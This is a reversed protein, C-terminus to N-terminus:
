DRRNSYGEVIEDESIIESEKEPINKVGLRRMAGKRSEFGAETEERLLAVLESRDDPLPLIFNVESSIDSVANVFGYDYHSRSFDRSKLYKISKEHLESLGSGWVQWHEETEQIVDQYLVQLARDNLGGFNLEQPVIQPLGSLEHLASKIRNYQDKYAEKWKFSTEIPYVKSGVGDFRNVIEIVAGPAVKMQRATGPAANEIVVTNFMEARLSDTADGMMSNLQDTLTIVDSVDSYNGKINTTEQTDFVVAPVFDVGLSTKPTIVKEETCDESFQREELFCQNNELYINQVFWYNRTEEGVKETRSMFVTLKELTNLGDNSYTPVSDLATHYVWRLVGDKLLLKVVCYGGILRDRALTIKKQNFRNDTWFTNILHTLSKVRETEEDSDDKPVVSVGHHGGMQWRAQRKIFAKFYNTHFRTPSDEPSDRSYAEESLYRGDVPIQEGFYYNYNKTASELRDLEERGLAKELPDKLPGQSYGIIM